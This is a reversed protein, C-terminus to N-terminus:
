ADHQPDPGPHCFALRYHHHLLTSPRLGEEFKTGERLLSGRLPPFLLLNSRLNRPKTKPGFMFDKILKLPTASKYMLVNNSM